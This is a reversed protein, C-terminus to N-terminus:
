HAVRKGDGLHILRDASAITSPRHAIILTTRGQAAANMAKNIELESVTDLNSSAEDMVLVPADILIARAIAIRQRQGGSLQVGREGCNTDYGEPLEKAIFEHIHAARAAQEVESDSAEPIGLRINDRISMNFLYVDQPVVAIAARLTGPALDRVDIGGIKIAGTDVDWLRLLLNICTSKGAGSPGVFAVKEGPAISFSMGNLANGRAADYAFSVNEFDIRSNPILKVKEGKREQIASPHETVALMRSASANVDGLERAIQSVAAIPALAVGFLIVAVPYYSPDMRGASVLWASLSLATLISAAIMFDTTGAEIGARQGYRIQSQGVRYTGEQLRKLYQGAASFVVLERLGQVGDVVDASLKGLEGRTVKGQQEARGALWFPVTAVLLAAVPFALALYPHIFALAASAAITVMIAIAYDAITHAFFRESVEVDGMVVAGIDGTRRGLIYRPALRVMGEFIATRLDALIAYAYDHILAMWGWILIAALFVTGALWYISPLIDSTPHGTAALGVIRAGLWAAALVALYYLLGLGTSLLLLRSQRLALPLLGLIPIRRSNGVAESIAEAAETM